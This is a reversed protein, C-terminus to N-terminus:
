TGGRDEATVSTTARGQYARTRAGDQLGRSKDDVKGRRYASAREHAEEIKPRSAPRREAKIHAREQATKDDEVRTTSRAVDISRARESM